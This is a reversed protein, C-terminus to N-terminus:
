LTKEKRVSTLFSNVYFRPIDYIWHWLTSIMYYLIGGQQQPNNTKHHDPLLIAAQSNSYNVVVLLWAIVVVLFSIVISWKIIAIPDAAPAYHSMFLTCNWGFCPGITELVERRALEEPSKVLAHSYTHCLSKSEATQVDSGCHEKYYKQVDERNHTHHEVADTYKYYFFGGYSLVGCGILILSIISCIYAKIKM